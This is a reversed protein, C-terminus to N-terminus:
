TQAIRLFTLELMSGGETEHQDESASRGKVAIRRAAVTTCRFVRLKPLDAVTHLDHRRGWTTEIVEKFSSLDAQLLNGVQNKIFGIPHKIHSEFGLYATAAKTAVDGTQECLAQHGSGDFGSSYGM